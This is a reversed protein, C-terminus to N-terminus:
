SGSGLDIDCDKKVEDTIADKSDAAETMSKAADTIKTLKDPDVDKVSSPDQLDEAKVGADDLAKRLEDVSDGLKNWDDKVSDPSKDAIDHLTSSLKDFDANTVDSGDIGGLTSKADKIASCYEDNGGGCATLLCVSLFACAVLRALRKM